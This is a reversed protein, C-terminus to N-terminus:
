CCSFVSGSCLKAVLCDVRRLMERRVAPRTAKEEEAKAREGLVRYEEKEGTAAGRRNEGVEPVVRQRAM